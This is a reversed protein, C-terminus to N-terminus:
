GQTTRSLAIGDLRVIRLSDGAMPAAELRSLVIRVEEQGVVVDFTLAEAPATGGADLGYRELTPALAVVEAEGTPAEVSLTARSPDFTIVAGGPRTRVSVPAGAREWSLVTLHEFGELALGELGEPAVRRFRRAPVTEVDQSPTVLAALRQHTWEHYPTEPPAAPVIEPLADPGHRSELYRMRSQLEGFQESTVAVPAAQGETVGVAHLGEVLRARQSVASVAFMSWPGFSALVLLVALTLPIAKIGRGRTALLYVAIGGLWAGLLWGMYRSETMGYPEVRQWVALVLVVVLPLLVAPFTRGARRLWASTAVLRPYLLLMTLVGFTSFGIILSSVWGQPWAWEVVIRAVYAYLIVFYLVTLPLLIFQSLVLLGRPYTSDQELRAYDAPVGALFFTTNFLGLTVIWLRVYTRDPWTVDFLFAIAALAASIGLAIVVSFFLAAAIRQFLSRNFHWFGNLEGQRLYPAVAVALHAAAALAFFRILHYTPTQASFAAPLTLYYAAPLAVGLALAVWRGAGSSREAFLTAALATPIGIVAPLLVPVWPNPAEGREAVAFWAAITAVVAWLCVLPFRRLVERFGYVAAGSLGRLALQLRM